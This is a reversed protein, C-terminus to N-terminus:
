IKGYACPESPAFSRASSSVAFTEKTFARGVGLFWVVDDDVPTSGVTGTFIVGDVLVDLADEVFADEKLTQLAGPKSRRERRVLQVGGVVEAERDETARLEFALVALADDDSLLETLKDFRLEIRLVLVLRGLIADVDTAPRGAVCDDTGLLLDLLRRGELAVVSRRVGTDHGAVVVPQDPLSLISLGDM